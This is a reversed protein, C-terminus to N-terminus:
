SNDIFSTPLTPVFKMLLDKAPSKISNDAIYYASLEWPHEDDPVHGFFSYWGDPASRTMTKLNVNYWNTSAQNLSPSGVDNYLCVPVWTDNWIFFPDALLDPNIRRAAEIDKPLKGAWPVMSWNAGVFKIWLEPYRRQHLHVREHLLTNSLASSPINEPLCIYAPPRTHPLGGDATPELWLVQGSWWPAIANEIPKKVLNIAGRYNQNARARANIPSNKIAARYGDIREAAFLCEEVQHGGLPNPNPRNPDFGERIPKTPASGM